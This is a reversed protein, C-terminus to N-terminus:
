TKTKSLLGGRRRQTEKDKRGNVGKMELRFSSSLRSDAAPM